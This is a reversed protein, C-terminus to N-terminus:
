FWFRLGLELPFEGAPFYLGSKDGFYAGIGLGPAVDLFLELADLPRWSIGIPFRVGATLASFNEWIHFSAFGGLGLYWGFNAEPILTQDILYYDGTATLGFYHERFGLSFGWYVPVSPAKLSLAAGGAGDGTWGWGWRGLIGVGWGDPHEAFAGVTCLMLGLLVALILKKM